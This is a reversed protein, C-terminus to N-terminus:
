HNTLMQEPLPKISDPFLVNDSGSRHQLKAKGSWLSDDLKILVNKKKICICKNGHLFGHLTVVDNHIVTLQSAGVDVGLLSLVVELPHGRGGIISPHVAATHGEETSLDTLDLDHQGSTMSISYQAFNAWQPGTVGYPSMSRPWCLSLYHSTAQRCWAM